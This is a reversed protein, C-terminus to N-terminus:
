WQGNVRRQVTVAIQYLMLYGFEPNPGCEVLALDRARLLEERSMQRLMAYVENMAHCLVTPTM